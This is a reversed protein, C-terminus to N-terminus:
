LIIVSMEHQKHEEDTAMEAPQLQVAPHQFVLEGLLGPGDHEVETDPSDSNTHTNTHKHTTNHASGGDTHPTFIGWTIVPGQPIIQVWTNCEWGSTLLSFFFM